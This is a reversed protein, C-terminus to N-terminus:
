KDSQELNEYHFIWIPYGSSPNCCKEIAVLKLNQGFYKILFKEIDKPNRDDFFQGQNGFVEEACKTFKEIDWELMRDSYEASYIKNKDFEESKWIVYQDFNYPHSFPTREIPKGYLDTFMRIPMGWADVYQNM